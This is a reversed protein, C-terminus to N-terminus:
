EIAEKFINAFARADCEIYQNYYDYFNIYYGESDLEPSIYFDINIRYLLDEKTELKEAREHQYAHRLEHALSDVIEVPDDLFDVNLEIINDRHNYRADADFDEALSVKPCDEVGLEDALCKVFENSILVKDSEDLVDWEQVDFVRLIDNVEDSIYFPINIDEESCDFIETLYSNLDVSDKSEQMKEFEKSIFDTIEHKSMGSEPVIDLYGKLTGSFKDISGERISEIGVRLEGIGSVKEEM